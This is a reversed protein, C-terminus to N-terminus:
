DVLAEEEAAPSLTPTLPRIDPRSGADKRPESRGPCAWGKGRLPLLDVSRPGIEGGDEELRAGAGALPDRALARDIRQDGAGECEVRGPEGHEIRRHEGGGVGLDGLAHQRPGDRTEAPQAIRGPRRPQGPQQATAARLRPPRAREAAATEHGHRPRTSTKRSHGLRPASRARAPRRDASPGASRRRARAALCGGRDRM